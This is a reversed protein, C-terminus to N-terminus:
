AAIAARNKKAKRRGAYGVGAFGLLMMAWTSPEPVSTVANGFVAYAGDPGSGSKWGSGSTDAYSNASPATTQWFWTLNTGNAPLGAVLFYSQGASLAVGTVSIVQGGSMTDTPTTLTVSSPFGSATWSGLQTGPAGAVDTWLSVVDSNTGYQYVLGIDIGTVNYNAASTFLQALSQTTGGVNIVAFGGLTSNYSNGAGLNSFIVDANAAGGLVLLAAAGVAVRYRIKM